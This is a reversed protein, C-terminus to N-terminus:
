HSSSTVPPFLPQSTQPTPPSPLPLVNLEASVDTSQFFGVARFEIFFGTIRHDAQQFFLFLNAVFSSRHPKSTPRRLQNGPCQRLAGVSRIFGDFPMPMTVLEVEFVTWQHFLM